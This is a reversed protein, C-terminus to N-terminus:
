GTPQLIQAAMSRADGVIAALVIAGNIDRRRSGRAAAAAAELIRRVDQSVGLSNRREASPETGQLVQALRRRSEPARRQNPERRARRHCRSRRLAGCASARAFGRGRGDVRRIRLGTGADCRSGVVDSNSAIDTATVGVVDGFQLGLRGLRGSEVCYRTSLVHEIALYLLPM